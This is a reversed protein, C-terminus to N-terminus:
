QADSRDGCRAETKACIPDPPHPRFLFAAIGIALLMAM